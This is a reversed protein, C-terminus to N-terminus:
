NGKISQTLAILLDKIEKVETKLNNIEENMHSVNEKTSELEQKRQLALNRTALRQAYAANDVNIVGGNDTDKRLSSYGEVQKLTM